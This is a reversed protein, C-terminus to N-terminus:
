ALPLIILFLFMVTVSLSIQCPLLTSPAAMTLLYLIHECPAMTPQQQCGAGEDDPKGRTLVRPAAAHVQRLHTRTGEWGGGRHSCDAPCLAGGPCVAM